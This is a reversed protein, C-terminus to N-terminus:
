HSVAKRGTIVTAKLSLVFEGEHREDNILRSIEEVVQPQSSEPVSRLWDRILFDLILPAGLFREGSEFVFEETRTWSRIGELGVDESMQEADSITPLETILNELDSEWDLLGTNYLAEWYISFFEGFSSITPLALVVMGGPAAVRVMEAFMKRIRERAVLSGNGIVLDFHDDPLPLQELPAHLFRTEAKLTTAKAQALVLSEDNEDVCLLNLKEGAREQIAIAHGGTGAAIYLANGDKPIELHEDILVAFREDWDPAIFLDHLFALEKSSKEGVVM